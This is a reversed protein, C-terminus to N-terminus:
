SGAGAQIKVYQQVKGGCSARRIKDANPNIPGGRVVLVVMGMPSHPKCKDGYVGPVAFPVTIDRSIKGAFPKAGEPLMGDISVADHGKTLAVFHVSDGPQIQVLDPDFVFTGNTGRNLMKVEVEAAQASGLTALAM